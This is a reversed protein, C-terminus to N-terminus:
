VATGKELASDGPATVACVVSGWSGQLTGAVESECMDLCACKQGRFAKLAEGTVQASPSADPLSESCQLTDCPEGQVCVSPSQLPVGHPCFEGSAQSVCGLYAQM